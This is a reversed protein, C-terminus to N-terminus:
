LTGGPNRAAPGDPGAPRHLFGGPGPIGVVTDGRGNWVLPRGALPRCPTSCRRGTASSIWRSLAAGRVNAQQHDWYGGPGDLNGGGVLVAARLRPDVAGALALVFSGLSYGGAGIRAPDVEPRSALYATAQMADTIMLGELRRAMEVGGEIHDHERTGSKRAPNREGEGAQDYTLVAGGARAYLIGAYFSYWSYKDGGHGNIVVFGPIKEGRPLPDPLYLIAPM